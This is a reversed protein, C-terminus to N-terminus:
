ILLRISLAFYGLTCEKVPPGRSLANRHVKAEQIFQASPLFADRSIVSVVSPLALGIESSTSAFEDGSSIIDHSCPEHHEGAAEHQSHDDAHDHHDQDQDHHERTGDCVFATFIHFLGSDHRCVQAESGAPIALLLSFLAASLSKM